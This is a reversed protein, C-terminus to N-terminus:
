AIQRTVPKAVTVQPPAPAASKPQSQSQGCAALAPAIMAIAALTINRMTNRERITARVATRAGPLSTHSHARNLRGCPGLRFVLSQPRLVLSPPQFVSCLSSLLGLVCLPRRPSYIRKSVRGDADIM